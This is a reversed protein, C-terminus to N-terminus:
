VRKEGNARLHWEPRMRKTYRFLALDAARETQFLPASGRWGLHFRDGSRKSFLVNIKTDHLPRSVAEVKIKIRRTAM